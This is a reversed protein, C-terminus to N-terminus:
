YKQTSLAYITTLNFNLNEWNDLKKSSLSSSSKNFLLWRGKFNENDSNTVIGGFFKGKMKKIYKQLGDSKEKANDITIGSKTDFLGIKGNKLKIIFDVYFLNIQRGYEYPIAFFTQDRDGNKFWFEVKSSNELYKIFNEETKWKFDYYFPKM